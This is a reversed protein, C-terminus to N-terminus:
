ARVLRDAWEFVIRGREKRATWLPSGARKPRVCGVELVSEDAVLGRAASMAESHDCYDPAEFSGPVTAGPAGKFRVVLNLMSLVM